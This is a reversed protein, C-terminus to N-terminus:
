AFGISASIITLILDTQRMCLFFFTSSAECVCLAVALLLTSWAYNINLCLNVQRDEVCYRNMRGTSQRVCGGCLWCVTVTILATGYALIQIKRSQWIGEYRVTHVFYHLTKWLKNCKGDTCLGTIFLCVSAIFGSSICLPLDNTMARWRGGDDDHHASHKNIFIWSSKMSVFVCVCRM